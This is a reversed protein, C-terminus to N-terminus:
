TNDDPDSKYMTKPHYRRQQMILSIAKLAPAYGQNAARKIWFFGVQTDQAVGYGYYYMYGVAYQAEANGDCAPGLLEQMARKYYGTEIYRKGQEVESTTAISCAFLLLTALVILVTRLYKEISDIM